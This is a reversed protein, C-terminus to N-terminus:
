QFLYKTLMKSQRLWLAYSTWMTLLGTRSFDLAAKPLTDNMIAKIDAYRNYINRITESHKTVDIYEDQLLANMVDYREPMEPVHIIFTEEGARRSYILPLVDAREKENELHHYLYILLLTLSTLRQQGDIIANDDATLVISGLFYHGYSLVKKREDEPSYFEFFEETLDDILEEIQKTQWQYERQYYHITYKVGTFLERITKPTGDIKKM